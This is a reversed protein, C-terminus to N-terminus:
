EPRVAYEHLDRETEKIAKNLEDDVLKDLEDKLPKAFSEPGPFLSRECIDNKLLEKLLLERQDRSVILKRLPRDAAIPHRGSQHMMRGVSGEIYGNQTQDSLLTVDYLFEAQQAKMRDDPSRPIVSVVVADSGLHLRRTRRLLDSIYDYKADFQRLDPRCPDHDAIISASTEDLWSRNVAWIASYTEVSVGLLAFYLAIHSSRTWDLLRSPGGYHQMLALWGIIDEDDPPNAIPYNRVLKKFQVLINQEWGTRDLNRVFEDTGGEPL